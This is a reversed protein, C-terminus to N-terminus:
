LIRRNSPNLDPQNESSHLPLATLVHTCTISPVDFARSFFLFSSLFHRSVGMREMDSWAEEAALASVKANTRLDEAQLAWLIEPELLAEGEFGLRRSYELPVIPPVRPALLSTLTDVPSLTLVIELCDAGRPLNFEVLHTPVFLVRWAPIHSSYFLPSCSEGDQPRDIFRKERDLKRRKSNAEDLMTTRLDARGDQSLESTLEGHVAHLSLVLVGGTGCRISM